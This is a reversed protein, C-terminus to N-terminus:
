TTICRQGKRVFCQLELFSTRLYLGFRTKSCGQITNKYIDITKLRTWWNYLFKFRYCILSRDVCGEPGNHPMRLNILFICRACIAIINQCDDSVWWVPNQKFVVQRLLISSHMVYGTFWIKFCLCVEYMLSTTGKVSIIM